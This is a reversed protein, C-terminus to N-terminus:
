RDPTSSIDFTPSYTTFVMNPYNPSSAEVYYYIGAGTTHDGQPGTNPSPTSGTRLTWDNDDTTDCFEYDPIIEASPNPNVTITKETVCEM